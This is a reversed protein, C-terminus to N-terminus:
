SVLKKRRGEILQEYSGSNRVTKSTDPNLTRLDRDYPYM